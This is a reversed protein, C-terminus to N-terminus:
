NLAVTAGKVKVQGQAELSLESQAKVKFAGDTKFEIDKSAHLTVKGDVEIKLEPGRVGCKERWFVRGGRGSSRGIRACGWAVPVEITVRHSRTDVVSEM